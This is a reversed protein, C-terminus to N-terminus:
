PHTVPRGKRFMAFYAAVRPAPKAAYMCVYMCVFKYLALFRSFSDEKLRQCLIGCIKRKSYIFFPVM